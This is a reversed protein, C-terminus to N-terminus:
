GLRQVLHTALVAAVEAPAVQVTVEGLAIDIRRLKDGLAAVVAGPIAEPRVAFESM